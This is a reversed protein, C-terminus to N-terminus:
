SEMARLSIMLAFCSFAVDYTGGVTVSEWLLQCAACFGFPVVPSYLLELAVICFKPFLKLLDFFLHTILCALGNAGVGIKKGMWM